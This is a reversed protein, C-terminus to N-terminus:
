KRRRGGERAYVKERDMGCPFHIARLMGIKVVGFFRGSWQPSLRTREQREIPNIRRMLNVAVTPQHVETM